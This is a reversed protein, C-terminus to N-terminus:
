TTMPKLWLVELGEMVYEDTFTLAPQAIHPFDMPTFDIERIDEGSRRGLTMGNDTFELVYMGTSRAFMSDISETAIRIQEVTEENLDDHMRLIHFLAEGTTRAARWVENDGVMVADRSCQITSYDTFTHEVMTCHKSPPTQREVDEDLEGLDSLSVSAPWTSAIRDPGIESFPDDQPPTFYVCTESFFLAFPHSNTTFHQDITAALAKIRDATFQSFGNGSRDTLIHKIAAGTTLGPITKNTLEM